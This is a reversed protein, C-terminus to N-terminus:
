PTADGPPDAPEPPREPTGVLLWSLGGPLSTVILVIGFLVSLALAEAGEDLGLLAFGGVMAGERVGWGAISVPVASLLLAAPVVLFCDRLGIALDLGAALVAVAVVTLGHIGISLGLVAGATAPARVIRWGSDSFAAVTAVVRLRRLPPPMAIIGLLAAIGAGAGILLLAIGATAVGLDALMPLGLAVLVVLGLTGVIRDLMVGHVAERVPLGLNAARWARVADGGVTSPLAQSFFLGEFSLRIMTALPLGIGLQRAISRWRLAGLVMVAALLLAAGGLHPLRAASLALAFQDLDIARLLLWVLLASVGAKLAFGPWRRQTLRGPGSSAAPDM